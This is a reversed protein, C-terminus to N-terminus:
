TTNKDWCVMQINTIDEQHARLFDYPWIQRDSFAYTHHEKYSHSGKVKKKKNNNRYQASLAQKSLFHKRKKTEQALKHIPYIQKYLLYGSKLNFYETSDTYLM